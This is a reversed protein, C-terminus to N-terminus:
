EKKRMPCMGTRIKVTRYPVFDRKIKKVFLEYDQDNELVKSGHLKSVISQIIPPLSETTTSTSTTSTSTTTSPPAQRFKPLPPLVVPAMKWVRKRDDKQHAM